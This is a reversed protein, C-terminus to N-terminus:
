TSEFGRESFVVVVVVVSGTPRNKAAAKQPGEHRRSSLPVDDM